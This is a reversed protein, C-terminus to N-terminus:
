YVITLYQTSYVFLSQTGCTCECARDHVSHLWVKEAIGGVAMAMVVAEHERAGQGVTIGIDDEPTHRLLEIAELHRWYPETQLM